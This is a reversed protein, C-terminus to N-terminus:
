ITKVTTRGTESFSDMTFPHGSYLMNTIETKATNIILTKVTSNFKFMVNVTSVSNTYM